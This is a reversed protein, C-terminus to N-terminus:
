IGQAYIVENLITPRLEARLNDLTALDVPRNLIEELYLKLGVYGTLTPQSLEVLIDIDSGPEAEGRAASGFLGIRVVGFERLRAVHQTLTQLIEIATPPAPPHTLYEILRMQESKELQLAKQYVEAFTLDM